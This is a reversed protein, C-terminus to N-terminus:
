AMGDFKNQESSSAKSVVVMAPRLVRDNLSYGKQIVHLVINPEVGTQEQMTIAQHKAPDFKEGKPSIAAMNFKEMVTSMMKLTLESGERFKAISANDEHTASLGLEISDIVPILENVFKEIAFKHASEIDKEARRRMNEAEAKTRLALNWNEEAKVQALALAAELEAIRAAEPGLEATASAAGGATQNQLNENENMLKDEAM